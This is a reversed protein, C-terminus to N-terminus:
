KKYLSINRFLYLICSFYMGDNENYLKKTVSYYFSFSYFFTFDQVTPEDEKCMKIVSRATKGHDESM